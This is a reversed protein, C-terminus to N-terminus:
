NQQSTFLKVELRFPLLSFSTFHETVCVVVDLANSKGFGRRKLEHGVVSVVVLQVAV